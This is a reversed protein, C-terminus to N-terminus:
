TVSGTQLDQPRAAFQPRLAVLQPIFRAFARARHSIRHKV